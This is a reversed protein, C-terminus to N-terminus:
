VVLKIASGLGPLKVLVKIVNEILRFAMLLTLIVMLYISAAPEDSSANWAVMYGPVMLLAKIILPGYSAWYHEATCWLLFMWVGALVLAFGMPTTIKANAHMLLAFSGLVALLVVRCQAYRWTHALFERVGMLEEPRDDQEAEALRAEYKEILESQDHERQLLQAELTAASAEAADVRALLDTDSGFVLACSQEFTLGCEECQKVAQRYANGGEAAGFLRIEKIFLDRDLEGKKRPM